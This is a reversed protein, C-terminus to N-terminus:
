LTAVPPSSRELFDMGSALTRWTSTSTHLLDALLHRQHALVEIKTSFFFISGM